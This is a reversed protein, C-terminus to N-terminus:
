LSFPVPFSHRQRHPDAAAQLSFIPDHHSALFTPPLSRSPLEGFLHEKMAPPLATGQFLLHGATAATVAPNSSSSPQPSLSQARNPSDGNRSQDDNDNVSKDDDDSNNKVFNNNETKIKHENMQNTNNVPLPGAQTSEPKLSPPCDEQSGNPFVQSENSTPEGDSPSCPGVVITHTNDNGEKKHPPITVNLSEPIPKRDETENFPKTDTSSSSSTSAVSKIHESSLPNEKVLEDEHDSM